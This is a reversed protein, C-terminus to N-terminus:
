GPMNVFAANTAVQGGPGNADQSYRDERAGSQHGQGEERELM